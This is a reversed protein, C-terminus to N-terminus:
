VYTFYLAVRIVSTFIIATNHKYRYQRLNDIAYAQNAAKEGMKKRKSNNQEELTRVNRIRHWHVNEKIPDCNSTKVLYVINLNHCGFHAKIIFLSFLRFFLVNYHNSRFQQRNVIM